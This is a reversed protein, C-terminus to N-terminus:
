SPLLVLGLLWPEIERARGGAHLSADPTHTAGLSHIPPGLLRLHRSQRDQGQRRRRWHAVAAAERSHVAVAAAAPVMDM